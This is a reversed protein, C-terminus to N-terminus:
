RRRRHQRRWRHQCWRVPDGVPQRHGDPHAYGDGGGLRDPDADREGAPQGAPEGAAPTTPTQCTSCTPTPTPPPTHHCKSCTPLPTPTQTQCGNYCTSPATPNGDAVASAGVHAGAQPTAQAATGTLLLATVGMAFCGALVRIRMAM